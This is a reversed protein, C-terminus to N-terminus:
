NRIRGAVSMVNEKECIYDENWVTEYIQFFSYWGPHSVLLYLLLIKGM